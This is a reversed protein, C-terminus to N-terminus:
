RAEREKRTVHIAGDAFQLRMERNGEAEHATPILRDNEGYVLAYGRELVALPSIARLRERCKEVQVEAERQRKRVASDLAVGALSLSVAQRDLRSQLAQSLSRKLLTTQERLRAVRREPSLMSLRKEAERLRLEANRM